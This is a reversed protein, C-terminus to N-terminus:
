SQSEYDSLDAATMQPSGQPAATSAIAQQPDQGANLADMAARMQAQSIKGQRFQAYLTDATVPAAGNTTAGPNSYASSNGGGFGSNGSFRGSGGPSYAGSGLPGSGDNVGYFTNGRDNVGAQGQQQLYQDLMQNRAQAPLLANAATENQLRNSLGADAAQRSLLSQYAGVNQNLVNSAVGANQGYVFGTDGRQQNDLNASLAAAEQRTLGFDARSRDALDANLAAQQQNATLTDAHGRNALDVQLATNGANRTAMGLRIAESSYPNGKAKEERLQGAVALDTAKQAATQYAGRNTTLDGVLKDLTGQATGKYAAELGARDATEKTIAGTESAKYADRGAALDGGVGSILKGSQDAYQGVQGSLYNQANGNYVNQIAGTEAATNANAKAQNGAIANGYADVAQSNSFYNSNAGNLGAAGAAQLDPNKVRAMSSVNSPGGYNGPGSPPAGYAGSNYVRPASYVGNGGGRWAGGGGPSYAGQNMVYGAGTMTGAGTAYPTAQFSGDPNTHSPQYGQYGSSPDGRYGSSNVNSKFQQYAPM